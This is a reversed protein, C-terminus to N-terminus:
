PRWAWSSTMTDRSGCGISLDSHRATTLGLLRREMIEVARPRDGMIEYARVRADDVLRVVRDGVRARTAAMLNSRRLRAKQGGTSPMADALSAQREVMDVHDAWSSAADAFLVDHGGFFQRQLTARAENEVRVDLSLRDVMTRWQAWCDALEREYTKAEAAPLDKARPGGLLCGMWYFVAAARLGEVRAVDLAEANLEIALTFLFVGDRIARRVATEIADRPEGKRDARVAAEVRKGIVSLPAAEAPLEAISRAHDVLSPFQQAVVLWALVAERPMLASELKALRRDAASTM